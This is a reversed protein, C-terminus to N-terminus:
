SKEGNKVKRRAKNKRGKLSEEGKSDAGPDGLIFIDVVM